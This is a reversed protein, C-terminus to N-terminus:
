STSSTDSANSDVDKRPGRRWRRRRRISRLDIWVSAPAHGPMLAAYESWLEAFGFAHADARVYPELERLRMRGLRWRQLPSFAPSLLEIARALQRQFEERDRARGAARCRAFAISWSLIRASETRAATQDERAELQALLRHTIADHRYSLTFELALDLADLSELSHRDDRTALADIARALFPRLHSMWRRHSRRGLERMSDAVEILWRARRPDLPAAAEFEAFVQLLPRPHPTVLAREVEFAAAALSWRGLSPHGFLREAAARDRRRWFRHAFIREALQESTEVDFRQAAIWELANERLQMGHSEPEARAGFPDIWGLIRVRATWEELSASPALPVLQTARPVVEDPPPRSPAWRAIAELSWRSRM